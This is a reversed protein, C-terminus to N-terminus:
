WTTLDTCAAWFADVEATTLGLGTLYSGLDYEQVGLDVYLSKHWSQSLAFKTLATPNVVWVGGAGTPDTSILSLAPPCAPTASM